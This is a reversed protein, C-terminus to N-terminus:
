KVEMRTFAFIGASLVGALYLAAYAAAEGVYRWPIGDRSLADVAWFHQWNPLLDLAGRLAPHGGALQGALYDAILGLLLAVSCVTLVPVADLRTALALALGALVLIALAILV